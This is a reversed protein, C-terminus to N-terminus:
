QRRDDCHWSGAPFDRPRCNLGCEWDAGDAWGSALIRIMATRRCADLTPFQGLNLEFSRETKV